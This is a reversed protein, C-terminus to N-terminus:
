DLKLGEENLIELRKERAEVYTDYKDKNYFQDLM